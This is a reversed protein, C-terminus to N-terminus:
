NHLTIIVEFIYFFFYKKEIPTKIFLGVQARVLSRRILLPFFVEPNYILSVFYDIFFPRKTLSLWNKSSNMFFNAARIGEDNFQYTVYICM